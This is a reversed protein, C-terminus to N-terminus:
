KKATVYNILFDDMYRVGESMFYLYLNYMVNGSSTIIFSFDQARLIEVIKDFYFRLCSVKIMQPQVRLCATILDCMLGSSCATETQSLHKRKRVLLPQQLKPNTVAVSQTLFNDKLSSSNFVTNIILSCSCEECDCKVLLNDNCVTCKSSLIKVVVTKLIDYFQELVNM